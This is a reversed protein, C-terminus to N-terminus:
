RTDVGFDFIDHATTTGAAYASTGGTSAIFCYEGAKMDETLTIKYLGPRIRESEFAVLSKENSGSKGGWMSFEGIETTRSSKEVKLHLLAFQNPNSVNGFLSTTGLGAAKDDFYFYFTPRPTDIRLTAKQGPIVATTKMKAIGYTMASAFAGGTKAGQYATRELIVMSAKGSRDITHIYIGSDHPALPDSPDGVANQGIGPTAGSPNDKAMGAIGPTQVVITTAAAPAASPNILARIVSDSIKAKKLRVLDDTSLDLPRNHQHIKAIVIDDSLGVQSMTLVDEVSVQQDGARAPTQCKSIDPALASAILLAVLIISKM